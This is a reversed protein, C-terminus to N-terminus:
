ATRESRPRHAYYSYYYYYQERAGGAKNLLVGPIKASVNELLRKAWTAERTDTRGSEIVLLTADVLAAIKLADGTRLIPPSDMVIVDYNQRAAELVIEIRQPDLLAYPNEPKSGSTCVQLNPLGSEQLVAAGAEFAVTGLLLESFGVNNGLRLFRHVSPVRLDGDVLLTRRGQRAFAIALDVSVTTKGEEPVSSTVLITKAPHESKQLITSLTDFKEAMFSGEAASLIILDSQGVKPIDTLVPLNLHRKVDYDTRLTTDMMERVYAAAAGLILAFLLGMPWFKGAQSAINSASAVKATEDPLPRVYGQVEGAAALTTQITKLQAVRSQVETRRKDIAEYEQHHRATKEYKPRLAKFQDATVRIEIEAAHNESRIAQEEKDMERGVADRRAEDLAIRKERIAEKLKRRTEHQPEYKRAAAAEDRLLQELEESLRAVRPNKRAWWDAGDSFEPVPGHMRYEIDARERRLADLRLKNTSLTKEAARIKSEADRVDNRLHEFDARLDESGSEGRIRTLEATLKAATGEEEKLATEAAKRADKVHDNAMETSFTVAEKALANVLATAEEATAGHGEILVIQTAGEPTTVVTKIWEGNYNPYDKRLRELTREKVTAATILNQWTAQTNPTLYTRQPVQAAVSIQPPSEILVKTTNRYVPKQVLVFYLLILVFVLGATALFWLARRRFVRLYDKLTM